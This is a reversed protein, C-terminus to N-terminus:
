KGNNLNDFYKQVGPITQNPKGRELWQRNVSDIMSDQNRTAKKWIEKEEKLTFNGAVMRTKIRSMYDHFTQGDGESMARFAIQADEYIAQELKKQATKQAELIAKSQWADQVKQPSLGLGLLVAQFNDVDSQVSQAKSMYKGTNIAIVARELNNFSSVNTALGIFDNTKIQFDGDKTFADQAYVRFPETSAWVKKMFGGSAGFALEIWDKKGTQIDSFIKTQDAAPAFRHLSVSEGPKQGAIMNMAVQAWGETMGEIFRDSLNIGRKIAEQKIDDYNVYPLMGMTAGSIASPVGWLAANVAFLRAKEAATLQKGTGVALMQESLRLNFTFFQTPISAFGENYAAASAKTMNGNLTEFRSIIETKARNDLARGPNKDKWDRYATFYGVDRNIEEGKRFFVTGKDINSGIVGRFLTPEEINRAIYEGGVHHIGSEKWAQVAELFDAKSWGTTAAAIDGYKSLIAADETKRAFNAVRSAALGMMGNKPSIAIANIAGLAQQFIQVPNWFGDVAHFTATRIHEPASRIGNIAIETGNAIKNGAVGTVRDVIRATVGDLISGIDSRAGIFRQINDRATMMAAYAEPNTKIIGKDVGDVHNLYYLPNQRLKDMPLKSQDFMHGFEAIWSEAAQMKYDSMWRARVIQDIGAGLASYPDMLEAPVNQWVPNAETGVNKITSLQAGRDALFSGDQVQSMDYAARTDKLGQYAPNQALFDSNSQLVDRGAQTMFIDHDPSLTGDGFMRRMDNPTEPLNASVFADFGPDNAKFMKVAKTYKQAWETAERQTAFSKLSTDGFYTTRGKSGTGVQPQKIYFQDNYIVHGGPRYDVNQGWQIAREDFKDTIVFHIDDKIGTADKLPKSRPDYMQIIKYEGSKLKDNVNKSYASADKLEYKTTFGNDPLVYVNADPTSLPYMDKVEKGNVFGTEVQQGQRDTFKFRYDRVGQRAKDRFVESERLTWDLDSIRTYQEYAQSQKDTPMKGFKNFFAQEFEGTSQYFFGRDKSTGNPPIFDRNHVLIDNLENRQSKNLSTAISQLEKSAESITDRLANPAMAATTRGTRQFQSVTTASSRLPYHGGFNLLATVMSRPTENGTTLNQRVISQTEDVDQKHALYFKTGEQRVEASSGMRYQLNKYHTAQASTDFLEGNPKGIRTEVSYTNTLLDYNTVQDRIADTSVRNYKQVAMKAGDVATQFAGPPLREVRTAGLGAKFENMIEQTRKWSMSSVNDPYPVPSANSPVARRVDNIDDSKGAAEIALRETLGSEAAKNTMGMKSYMDTPNDYGQSKVIDGMAKRTEVESKDVITPGFKVNQQVQEDVRTIRSGFDEFRHPDNGEPIRVPHLGEKPTDSAQVTTGKVAKGGKANDGVFYRGKDDQLLRYDQDEDLVASLKEYGKKDVYITKSGDKSPSDFNVTGEKNTYTRTTTSAQPDIRIMGAEPVRSVAVEAGDDTFYRPTGGQMRFEGMRPQSEWPRKVAAEPVYYGPTPAKSSTGLVDIAAQGGAQAAKEAETVPAKTGGQLVGEAASVGRNLAQEAEVTRIAPRAGRLGAIGKGLSGVPVAGAVDAIALANDVYSDSTSYQVAARVFDLADGPATKFLESQPGAVAMLAAKVGEPRLYLAEIQELKNRGPLVSLLGKEPESTILNRQRVYQAMGMSFVNQSLAGLKDQQDKQGIGMSPIAVWPLNDYAAQTEEYVSHAQQRNSAMVISNRMQEQARIPHDEFAKKMVANKEPEGAVGAMVTRNAFKDELVTDPNAEPTTGIEVIQNTQEPTLKGGAQVSAQVAAIKEAKFATNARSATVERLQNERGNKFEDGLVNVGPSDAGLAYDARAARKTLISDPLAPSSPTIDIGEDKPAGEPAFEFGDTM